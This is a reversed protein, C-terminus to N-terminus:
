PSRPAASVLRTGEWFFIERGDASWIPRRGGGLSIQVRNGGGPYPRVYAEPRGSEDSVYAIWLGDPSFRGYSETATPSAAVQTRARTSDLAFTELDFTPGYIANYVATRGDPAVDINWPNRGVEGLKTPTGSGDVAQTWFAARGDRTSVYV